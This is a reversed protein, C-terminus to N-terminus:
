LERMIALLHAGEESARQCHLACSCPDHTAKICDLCMTSNSSNQSSFVEFCSEKEFTDVVLDSGVLQTPRQGLGRGDRHHEFRGLSASKRGTERHGVSVDLNGLTRSLCARLSVRCGIERLLWIQRAALVAEEDSM